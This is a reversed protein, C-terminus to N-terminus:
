NGQLVNINNQIGTAISMVSNGYSSNGSGCSRGSYYKCAANRESTYSGSVAGLNSLYLSSAMIADPASYPDPPNHGTVSAIQNEMLVWTSAIFQSPGMGGGYGVSQPCSVPTHYPDRGLANMLNIFPEVDRGAKMVNSVSANTSIKIGSGDSGTLYCSGINAGLNTEQTLIALVFAPRVGTKESAATAYQLADGFKIPGTNLLPFLANKIKDAEAQNASILSQYNKQQQKNLALLAAKSAEDKKISDEEDQVNIKLDIEQNRQQDLAQKQTETQGKVAEVQVFLSQLSQDLSDYEGVDAFFESLDANSLFVEPLSFGDIQNTQRIIQSLSDKGQNIQDTLTGIVQNKVNIDRGLEAIALNHAKIELQAEAIKADLIAIDRSISVGEQQKQSLIQKQAAIQQEIQNLQDQLAQRQEPTLNSVQARVISFSTVFFILGLFIFFTKKFFSLM